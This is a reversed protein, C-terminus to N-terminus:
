AEKKLIAGPVAPMVAGPPPANKERFEAAMEEM